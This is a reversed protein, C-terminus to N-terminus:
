SSVFVWWKYLGYGYVCTYVALRLPYMRFRALGSGRSAIAAREEPSIPTTWKSFDRDFYDWDPLLVGAIGLVGAGYTAMAKKFSHTWLGVVVMAAALWVLSARLAADNAMQRRPAASFSAFRAPHLRPLPPPLPFLRHNASFPWHAPNRPDRHM